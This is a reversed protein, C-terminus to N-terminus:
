AVSLIAEADKAGKAVKYYIQSAGFKIEREEGYYDILDDIVTNPEFDKNYLGIVEKFEYARKQDLCVRKIANQGWPVLAVCCDKRIACARVEHEIQWFTKM